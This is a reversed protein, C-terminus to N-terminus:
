ITQKKQLLFLNWRYFSDKEPHQWRILAEVGVTKHNKLEIQPQYHLVFQQKHLAARLQQSMQIYQWTKEQMDKTFIAFGNKGQEKIHFMAADAHKMLSSLDEGHEPYLAIGMSVSIYFKQNELIWPRRFSELIQKVKSVVQNSEEIDVLVIAFEDGSLRSVISPAKIQEALVKATNIILKDGAAHGMSDNIHKFNDIDLYIFALKQKKYQLQETVKQEFLRRNPLKTLVDYYALSHLDQEMKRRATIDIGIAVIGQIEGQQDHLLNNSWLITVCSGEKCCIDMESNRIIEGKLMKNFLTYIDEKKSYERIFKTANQGIIEEKKYGTLKEAFPNFQTINANKDLSLIIMPAELIVSESFQKQQHLIEQLHIQATIDTHSGAMRIAKGESNCVAKGRSLVWRYEGEKSKVRYTNQYSEEPNNLYDQIVKLARAKDEPHLLKEWIQYVNGEEYNSSNKWKSSFFYNQTQLDWDWISDNCGEVALKYRQDSLMLANRHKEIEEYAKLTKDIAFKFLKMKKYIIFHFVAGTVLVYVAGKYLQTNKLVDGDKVWLALIKDSLVIWSIGVVIYAIIIKLTETHPKINKKVDIFKVLENPSEKIRTQVWTRAKNEM